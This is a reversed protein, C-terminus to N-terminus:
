NLIVFFKGTLDEAIGNVKGFSPLYFKELEPV